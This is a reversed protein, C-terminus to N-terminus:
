FFQGFEGRGSGDHRRGGPLCLAARIVDKIAELEDMKIEDIHLRGATDVIVLDCGRRRAEALGAEAVKPAATQIGLDFVPVDINRGVVHLQEIAAPRYIDCGVLLPKWGGKKCRLALKGAFTTKGSGQLGLLLISTLKGERRWSSSRPRAM